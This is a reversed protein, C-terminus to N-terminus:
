GNLWVTLHKKHVLHNYTQIGNSDGTYDAQLLLNKVIAFSKVPLHVMKHKSSTQQFVLVVWFCNKSYITTEWNSLIKSINISHLCNLTVFNTNGKM